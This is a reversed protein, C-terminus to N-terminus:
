ALPEFVPDTAAAGAPGHPGPLAITRGCRAIVEPDRTAILATWPADPDMLIDLIRGKVDADIADLVEDILVLRPRGALARALMLRRLQGQSLPAGGPSLRTDIAGPLAPGALWVDYLDVLTWGAPLRASLEERVLWTPVRETLYLDILEAEGAVGVPLPAGFSVRMRPTAADTWAVPLGSERLADEWADALERQALPPADASRRM